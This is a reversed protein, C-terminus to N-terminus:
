GGAPSAPPRAYLTVRRAGDHLVVEWRGPLGDATLVNVEYCGFEVRFSAEEGDPISGMGLRNPVPETEGCRAITLSTIARGTDNQLVIWGEEVDCGGIFLFIFCLLRSFGRM